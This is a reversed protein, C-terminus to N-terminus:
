SYRYWSIHGEIEFDNPSLGRSILKDVNFYYVLYFGDHHDGVVSYGVSWVAQLTERWTGQWGQDWSRLAQWHMQM